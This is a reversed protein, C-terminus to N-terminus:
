AHGARRRLATEDADLEQSIEVMTRRSIEGEDHLKRLASREVDVLRLRLDTPDDEPASEDELRGHLHDRRLELVQRLAEV